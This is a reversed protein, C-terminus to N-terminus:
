KRNYTKMLHYNSKRIQTKLDLNLMKLLSDFRKRADPKGNLVLTELELFNGLTKIKDLHIRTNDYMYLLRKKEVVVEVRFIKRFFKETGKSTLHIVEYDSFRDKSKENRNYRILSENGNEIRLKLLSDKNSFYVDRQYLTTVFEANLERLKRIVPNFSKLPIKIELNVPM